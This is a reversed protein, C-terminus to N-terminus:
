NSHVTSEDEEREVHHAKTLEGQLVPFGYGAILYRGDNFNFIIRTIIDNFLVGDGSQFKNEMTTSIQKGTMIRDGLGPM